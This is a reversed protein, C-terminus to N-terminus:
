RHLKKCATCKTVFQGAFFLLLVLKNGNQKYKQINEKILKERSIMPELRPAKM